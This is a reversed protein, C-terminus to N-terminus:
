SWILHHQFFINTAALRMSKPDPKTNLLSQNLYNTILQKYYFISIQNLLFLIDLLRGYQQDPM